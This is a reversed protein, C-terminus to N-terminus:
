KATNWHVKSLNSFFYSVVGVAHAIDTRTCVIAYML